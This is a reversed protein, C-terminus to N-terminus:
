MVIEIIEGCFVLIKDNYFYFFIYMYFNEISLKYVFFYYEEYVFLICLKIIMIFGNVYM